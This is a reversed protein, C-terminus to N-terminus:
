KVSDLAMATVLGSMEGSFTVFRFAAGVRVKRGKYTWGVGSAAPVLPVRVTGLFVVVPQPVQGLGEINMLATTTQRDQGIRILQARDAEAVVEADPLDIDGADIVDTVGPTAVFRVQLTAISRGTPPFVLRADPPRVEDIVFRLLEPVGKVSLVLLRDQLIEKGDVRCPERNSNVTCPFQVITRVRVKTADPVRIFGALTDHLFVEVQTTETTPAIAALVEGVAPAGAALAFPLGVRVARAEDATLGVITGLVQVKTEVRSRWEAGVVTLAAPKSFVVRGQDLLTFDYTGQPLNPVVLQASTSNQVFFNSNVTGFKAELFPRFNEGTIRLINTQDEAVQTPSMETIRPAGVKFMRFAGYGLALLGVVVVAAAADIVNVKGFLRGDRDILAM